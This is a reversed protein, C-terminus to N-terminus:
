PRRPLMLRGESWRHGHELTFRSGIRLGSEDTIGVVIRNLEEYDASTTSTGAFTLVLMAPNASYAKAYM